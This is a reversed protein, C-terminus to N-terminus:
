VVRSSGPRRPPTPSNDVIERFSRSPSSGIGAPPDIFLFRARVAHMEPRDLIGAIKELHLLEVPGDVSDKMERREALRLEQNTVFAMGDVGNTAVGAWDSLFKAQIDAFPQQGRPFYSAMIWRTGDRVALADKGGDRGGLPHSPDIDRFGEAHLIQGSLRESPAQGYTWNLLRHWTEDPRLSM